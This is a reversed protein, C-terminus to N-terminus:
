QTSSVKPFNGTRFFHELAAILTQANPQGCVFDVRMGCSSMGQATTSCLAALLTKELMAHRRDEPLLGLFVRASRGSFFPIAAVKQRELLDLSEPDIRPSATMQYAAVLDVKRGADTLAHMLEDRGEQARFFLFRAGPQSTRIMDLALDHSGQPREPVFPFYGSRALLTATKNGVAFLRPLERGPDVEQLFARVANVSTFVVGDYDHLRTLSDLFPGPDDPPGWQLVPSVSAVGGFREVMAATTLAEPLPRTILLIKGALGSLVELDNGPSGNGM